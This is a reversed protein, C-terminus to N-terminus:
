EEVKFFSIKSGDEVNLYVTDEEESYSCFKVLRGNTLTLVITEGDMKYPYTKTGENDTFVAEKGDFTISTGTDPDEYRGKPGSYGCACVTLMIAAIIIFVLTKKM